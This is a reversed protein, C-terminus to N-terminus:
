FMWLGTSRGLGSLNPVPSMDHKFTYVLSTIDEVNLGRFTRLTVAPTPFHFNTRSFNM